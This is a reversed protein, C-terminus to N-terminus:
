NIISSRKLKVILDEVGQLNHRYLLECAADVKHALALESLKKHELHSVSVVDPVDLFILQQYWDKLLIYRLRIQKLSTLASACILAEHFEENFVRWDQYKTVTFKSEVKSLRYLKSVINAEWLEDGRNISDRLLLDELKACSYYTDRIVEATLKTVRFGANDVLEVLGSSLLRSLAERIPSLGVNLYQKLYEGKIQEAPLLKGSLILEQIKVVCNSALTRGERM